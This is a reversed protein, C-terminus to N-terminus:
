VDFEGGLLSEYSDLAEADVEGIYTLKRPRGRWHFELTAVQSDSGIVPTKIDTAGMIVLEAIILDETAGIQRLLHGYSYGNNAKDQFYAALNPAPRGPVRFPLQDVFVLEDAETIIPAVSILVGTM